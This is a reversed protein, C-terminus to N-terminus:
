MTRPTLRMQRLRIRRGSRNWEVNSRRIGGGTVPQGEGNGGIGGVNVVAQSRGGILRVAQSVHWEALWGNRIHRARSHRPLVPLAEEIGYSVREKAM